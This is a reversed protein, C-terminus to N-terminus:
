FSLMSYLTLFKDQYVNVLQKPLFLMLLEILDDHLDVPCKLFEQSFSFATLHLHEIITLTICIIIIIATLIINIM